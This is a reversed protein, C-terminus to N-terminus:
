CFWQNFWWVIGAANGAISIVALTKFFWSPREGIGFAMLLLVPIIFDMMYRYGLQWAGTNHYLLLLGASLVVSIWAGATWFNLKFRRFAYIAVPTMALISLGERTPNYTLCGKQYTIIPLKLIM